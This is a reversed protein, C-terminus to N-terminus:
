ISYLNNSNNNLTTNETHLANKEIYIIFKCRDYSDKLLTQLHTYSTYLM